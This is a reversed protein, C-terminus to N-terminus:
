TQAQTWESLLHQLFKIHDYNVINERSPKEVQLKFHHKFASLIDDVADDPLKLIRDVVDKKARSFDDDSPLPQDAVNAKKAPTKPKARPKPAQKVPEAKTLSDCDDDEEEGPALGYLSILLYRRAYTIRKGLEQMDNRGPVKDVPITSVVREGSVHLLTTTVLVKENVEVFSTVHALGHETAKSVAELVSKLSAYRGFNGKSDKTATTHGQQFKALAQPLDKLEQTM